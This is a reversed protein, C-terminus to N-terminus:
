RCSVWPGRATSAPCDRPAGRLGWFSLASSSRSILRLRLSEPWWLDDDLDSDPWRRFDDFVEELGLVATRGVHSSSTTPWGFLITGSPMSTSIVTMALRRKGEGSRAMSPALMSVVLSRAATERTASVRVLSRMGISDPMSVPWFSKSETCSIASSCTSVM